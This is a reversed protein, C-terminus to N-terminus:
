QASARSAAADKAAFLGSYLEIWRLAVVEASYREQMLRRAAAGLRLREQPSDLLLRLANCLSEVDGIPVLLGTEDDRLVDPIGGVPTAVCALGHAMAELLAVPKGEDHSPLCFVSATALARETDARDLWGPLSVRDPKPLAAIQQAASEMDGDGALLAAFDVDGAQLEAVAQLLEPVGKLAGVRGLFLVLPPTSPRSSHVPVRVPNQVVVADDRGSFVRVREAWEPSLVVVLAASQFMWRIISRTARGASEAFRHFQGGHLHVVVPAGRLDAIWKLIAKRAFSGRSAVHLHVVTSGGATACALRPISALFLGLTRGKSDGATPVMVLEYNEALASDLLTAVVTAIGGRAAPDPGVMVIRQTPSANV